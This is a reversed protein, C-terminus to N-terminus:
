KKKGIEYLDDGSIHLSSGDMYEIEISTIILKKATWNYWACGWCGGGSQGKKIPGTDKGRFVKNGRIECNVQDGVANIPYGEWYFYKITKDSLNKYYVYADVGSASNPSSLYYSTLKVSNNIKDRRVKVVEDFYKMKSPLVIEEYLNALISDRNNFFENKLEKGFSDKIEFTMNQSPVKLTDGLMRGMEYMTKLSIFYREFATVIATSDDAAEIMEHKNEVECGKNDNSYSIYTYTRNPTSRNVCASMLIPLIFLCVFIRKM